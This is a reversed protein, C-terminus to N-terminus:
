KMKQIKKWNIWKAMVDLGWRIEPGRNRGSLKRVSSGGELGARSYNVVKCSPHQSIFIQNPSVRIFDKM